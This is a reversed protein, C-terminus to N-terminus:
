VTAIPFWIDKDAAANEDLSPVMLYAFGGAEYGPVEGPRVWCFWSAGAEKLNEFTVARFRCERILKKRLSAPIRQPDQFFLDEGFGVATGGVVDGCADFFLFGGFVPFSYQPNQLSQLVGRQFDTMMRAGDLPYAWCYSTAERPIMAKRYDTHYKEIPATPSLTGSERGEVHTSISLLALNMDYAGEATETPQQTVTLYRGARLSPLPLTGFPGLFRPFSGEQKASGGDQSAHINLLQTYDSPTLFYKTPVFKVSRKTKQQAKELKDLLYRPSSLFGTGYTGFGPVYTARTADLVIMVEEVSNNQALCALATQLLAQDIAVGALYVRRIGKDVLLDLLTKCTQREGPGCGYRLRHVALANPPANPDPNDNWMETVARNSSDLLFAGTWRLAPDEDRGVREMEQKMRDSERRIVFRAMDKPYEVAGAGHVDPHIGSYAVHINKHAGYKKGYHGAPDMLEALVETVVADFDSGRSGQLCHPPLGGKESAPGQGIFSCHELSFYNKVCVVSAKSEAFTKMLAAVNHSCHHAEPIACRGGDPNGRHPAQLDNQMGCIILASDKDPVIRSEPIFLNKSVAEKLKKSDRAEKLDLESIYEEFIPAPPHTWLPTRGTFPCLEESGGGASARSFLVEAAAASKLRKNVDELRRVEAEMASLRGLLTEAGPRRAFYGALWLRVCPPRMTLLSSVATDFLGAVNHRELYEIDEDLPENPDVYDDM